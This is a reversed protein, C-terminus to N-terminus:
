YASRFIAFFIQRTNFVSLVRSSIVKNRFLALMELPGKKGIGDRVKLNALHLRAQRANEMTQGQRLIGLSPERAGRGVEGADGDRRWDHGGRALWGDEYLRHHILAPRAAVIDHADSGHGTSWGASPLPAHAHMKFAHAESGRQLRCLPLQRRM